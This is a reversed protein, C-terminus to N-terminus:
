RMWHSHIQECLNKLLPIRILSVSGYPISACKEVAQRHSDTIRIFEPVDPETGSMEDSVIIDCIQTWLRNVLTLIIGATIEPAPCYLEGSSQGRELERIVAPLFQASLADCYSIKVLRGEPLRFIPLLMLLFSLKEDMFPIMGSLLYDLNKVAQESGGIGSAAASYIQGARNSCIGELLAEKSVFHHYFSGKSGNIRDLIDQISTQEYGKRCFLEEATCLIEQKRIDGKKM